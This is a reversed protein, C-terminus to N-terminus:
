VKGRKEQAMKRLKVSYDETVCAVEIRGLSEKSHPFRRYSAQEGVLWDEVADLVVRDDEIVYSGQHSLWTSIPILSM